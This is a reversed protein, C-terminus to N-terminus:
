RTAPFWSSQNVFHTGLGCAVSSRTVFDATEDWLLSSFFIQFVANILNERRDTQKQTYALLQPVALCAIVPVLVTTWFIYFPLMHGAVNIVYKIWLMTSPIDYQSYFVFYITFLICLINHIFYMMYQSHLVDYITFLTCWINHIFYMMYRSHLVDYITFLICLINHIFYMMYQSYFVDYITFLICLLHQLADTAKWINQSQYICPLHFM